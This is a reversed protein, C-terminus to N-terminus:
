IKCKQPVKLTKPFVGEQQEEVFQSSSEFGSIGLMASALGFFLATGWNGDVLTGALNISPFPEDLNSWLISTDQVLYFLSFLCLVILTVIHLVFMVLAVGASESMGVFSLCAFGFLLFITCSVVDIGPIQTALYTCASTGSVVGTAIYSLLALSAAFSAVRKSTTNLLVNYSGGNLPVAAMVEGYIFRYLYLIGAVCALAIPAAKGAKSAVLGSVYLCSSLIDNGCIATAPWESLKAPAAELALAVCQLESAAVSLHEHKGWGPFEWDKLLPVNNSTDIEVLLPKSRANLSGYMQNNSSSAMM